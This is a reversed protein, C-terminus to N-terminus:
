CLSNHELVNSPCNLDVIYKDTLDLVLLETVSM